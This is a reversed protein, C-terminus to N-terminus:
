DYQTFIDAALRRLNALQRRAKDRARVMEALHGPNATQDRRLTDVRNELRSVTRLSKTYPRM